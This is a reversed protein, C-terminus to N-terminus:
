SSRRDRGPGSAPTGGFFWGLIIATLSLWGLNLVSELLHYIQVPLPFLIGAFLWNIALLILVLWFVLTM